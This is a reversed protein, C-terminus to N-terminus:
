VYVITHALVYYYTNVSKTNPDTVEGLYAKIFHFMSNNVNSVHLVFLSSLVCKLNVHDIFTVSTFYHGIHISNLLMIIHRHM